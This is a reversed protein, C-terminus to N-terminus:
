NELIDLIEEISLNDDYSKDLEALNTTYLDQFKVKELETKSITGGSKVFNEVANDVLDYTIKTTDIDKYVRRIYTNIYLNMDAVYNFDKINKQLMQM